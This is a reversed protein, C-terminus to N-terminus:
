VGTPQRRISPEASTEYMCELEELLMRRREVYSRPAPPADPEAPPGFSGPPGEREERAEFRRDALQALSREPADRRPPRATWTGTETAAPWFVRRPEVPPTERDDGDAPDEEPGARARDRDPEYVEPREQVALGSGGPSPTNRLHEVVLAVALCGAIATMSALAMPWGWGVPRRAPSAERGVSARGALFMVRDRDLRSAGPRFASLRAAWAALEREQESEHM